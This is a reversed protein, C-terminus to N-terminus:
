DRRRAVAVVNPAYLDFWNCAANIAGGGAKLIPLGLRVLPAWRGHYPQNLYRVPFVPQVHLNDIREITFGAKVLGRALQARTFGHYHGGFFDWFRM